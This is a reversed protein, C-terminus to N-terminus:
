ISELDSKLRRVVKSALEFLVNRIPANEDRGVLGKFNAMRNDHFDHEVIEIRPVRREGEISFNNM